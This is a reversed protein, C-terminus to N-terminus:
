SDINLQDILEHLEVEPYDEDEEGKKREEVPVNEDRYLNMKSRMEPDEELDDMFEDFEADDKSKELEMRKLKWLRRRNRNEKRQPFIKKIIVM